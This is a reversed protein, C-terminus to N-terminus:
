ALVALADIEILMEPRLLAECVVGTSAPRPEVLLRSRVGAVERYRPLAAPTVYEVTKVLNGARGGAAEVVKVINQLTYEAQAAVDGEHVIRETAPDLAGQGSLFLLNGARVGPSYTLKRYRDWGPNVAVPEDRTAIFDYQILADPHILRPM